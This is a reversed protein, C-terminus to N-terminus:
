RTIYVPGSLKEPKLPYVHECVPCKARSHDPDLYYMRVTKDNGDHCGSCVPVSESGDPESLWYVGKEFRLPAKINEPM